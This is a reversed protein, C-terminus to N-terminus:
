GTLQYADGGLDIGVKFDGLDAVARQLTAARRQQKFVRLSEVSRYQCVQKASFLANGEAHALFAEAGHEQLDRKLAAKRRSNSDCVDPVFYTRDGLKIEM